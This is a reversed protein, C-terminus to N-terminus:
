RNEFHPAAPPPVLAGSEIKQTTECNEFDTNGSYIITISKKLMRKTKIPLTATAAGLSITGIEKPKKNQLLEFTVTGTPVGGGPAVPEIEATLTLSRLKHKKSFVAVPQFEVQTSSM